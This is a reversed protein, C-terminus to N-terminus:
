TPKVQPEQAKTAHGLFHSEQIWLGEDRGGTVSAFVLQRRDIRCSVSATLVGLAQPSTNSACLMECAGLQNGWGSSIGRLTDKM